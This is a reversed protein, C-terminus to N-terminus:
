LIVVTDTSYLVTASSYDTCYLLRYYQVTTIVTYTCYLVTTDPPVTCYLVTLRPPVTCYLIEIPVRIILVTPYCPVVSNSHQNPGDVNQPKLFLKVAVKEKVTHVTNGM